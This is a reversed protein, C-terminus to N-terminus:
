IIIERKNFTKMINKVYSIKEYTSYIENKEIVYLYIEYLNMNIKNLINFNNNNLLM